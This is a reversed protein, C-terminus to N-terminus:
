KQSTWYREKELCHCFCLAHESRNNKHAAALNLMIHFTLLSQSLFSRKKENHFIVRPFDRKRQVFFSIRLLRIAWDGDSEKKHASSQEVKKGKLLIHVALSRLTFLMCTSLSQTFCFPLTSWSLFIHKLKKCFQLTFSKAQAHLRYLTSNLFQFLIPMSDVACVYVRASEIHM